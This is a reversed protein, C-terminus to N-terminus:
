IATLAKSGPARHCGTPSICVFQCSGARGRRYWHASDHRAAGLYLEGSLWTAWNWTGTERVSSMVDLLRIGSFHILVLVLTNINHPLNGTVVCLVKVSIKHQFVFLYKKILPVPKITYSLLVHKTPCAPIIIMYYSLICSGSPLFHNFSPTVVVVTTTLCVNKNTM